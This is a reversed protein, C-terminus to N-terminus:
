GRGAGAGRRFVVSFGERAARDAVTAGFARVADTTDFGAIASEGSPPSAIPAPEWAPEYLWGEAEDPLRGAIRALANRDAKKLAIGTLRAVVRGDGGYM